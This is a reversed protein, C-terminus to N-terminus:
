AAREGLLHALETRSRIGLKRYIRSLHAEITKPSLFLAASAERNTAGRAVIAAVQMEQPTLEWQRAQGRRRREGTAGLEVRAREAWPAAGLRDFTALASRLRKRAETTGFSRRLREGYCLETRALEFPTPTREHRTLADDFEAELDDADAVLGRCRAAAAFTWTRGTARAQREFHALADRAETTRGARVYAEILDPTQQLVIPERMEHHETLREVRELHEIAEDHNGLGLELLGLASRAYCFTSGLKHREAIELAEAAHARCDDELGRAAEIRALVPLSYHLLGGTDRALRLSEWASAYALPWNGTRFELEARTLTVPALLSPSSASWGAERMRELLHAASEYEELWILVTGFLQVTPALAEVEALASEHRPLLSTGRPAEGHVILAWGLMLRAAIEVPGGQGKALSHAREAIEVGVGVAGGMMAAACADSLMLSARGPDKAEAGSAEALLLECASRSRGRAIEVRGRLHQIQLRRQPDPSAGLARDLVVLAREPEGALHRDIAAEFLRGAGREDDPTLRAAREFASAAAAHGGRERAAHATEELMRAVAEDPAIAAAALHWARRDVARPGGGGIAGALARHAARRAEGPAAHYVASRLLPHRFEIRLDDIRVIDPAEAQELAALELGLASAARALESMEGSDSAAALVLARRTEEPLHAARRLFAREVLAAAPLEDGLAELGALQDESLLAAIELLALPNGQTARFLREAIEGSVPSTLSGALLLTAAGRELGGVVLEPLAGQEFPDAEAEGVALLLAVADADLRRAAFLLAARSSADLWQADDVVVLVPRVEAAVGLMSLTAASITFPDGPPRPGLALAGALADAQPPPLKDLHDLVPRLLDSLGAFALESDAEVGRASLVTMDGAREIACRLLATKGAGPEGRVVLTGSVGRSAQDLLRDIVRCEAERGVLM